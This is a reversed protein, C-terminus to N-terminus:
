DLVFRVEIEAAKLIDAASDERWGAKVKLWFIAATVTAQCLKPSIAKRYLSQMVQLNARLKGRDLEERFHKRLTVHSCGIYAAIKDHPVGFSALGEVMAHDGKAPKFPPRGGKSRDSAKGGM